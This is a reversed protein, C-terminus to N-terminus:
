TRTSALAHLNLDERGCWKSRCPRRAKKIELLNHAAADAFLNGSIYGYIQELDESAIPTFKLSYSKASM